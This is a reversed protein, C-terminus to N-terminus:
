EEEVRGWQGCGISRFAVDTPAIQIQVPAGTTDAVIIDKAEGSLGRLRAWYCGPFGFSSPPPITRYLGPKIEEGVRWTGDLFSDNAPVAWPVSMFSRGPEGRPGQEGPEGQPGQPGQEGSGGTPGQPGAPGRLGREGEPGQEGPPGQNGRAGPLGPAGDQGPEGQAGAPGQPGQPGADGAPGQPGAAGEPGAPGADGKADALSEQVIERVEEESLGSSCALGATVLLLVLWWVFGKRM